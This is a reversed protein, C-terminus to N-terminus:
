RRADHCDRGRCRAPCLPRFVGATNRYQYDVVTDVSCDKSWGILPSAQNGPIAFLRMGIGDQNDVKPYGLGAQTQTKCVFPQQQPGSFIPGTIPHNEVKLRGAQAM